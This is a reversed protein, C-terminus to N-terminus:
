RRLESGDQRQWTESLADSVFMPGLASGGIGIVLLRTFAPASPPRTRREHVSAAFSKIEEYVRQIERTIESHPALQPNRLWYHGVMRQEDPNAIAGKELDDM